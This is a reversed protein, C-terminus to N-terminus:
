AKSFSTFILNMLRILSLIRVYKLLISTENIKLSIQIMMIFDMLLMRMSLQAPFQFLQSISSNICNIVPCLNDATIARSIKLIKSAPPILLSPQLFCGGGEGATRERERGRGRFRSHKHFFVWIFFKRSSCPKVMKIHVINSQLVFKLHKM